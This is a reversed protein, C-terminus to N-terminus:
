RLASFVLLHWDLVVRGAGDTYGAASDALARLAEDPDPLAPDRVPGFAQRYDVYAAVSAHVVPLRVETVRVQRFGVEGLRDALGAASATPRPPMGLRRRAEQLVELERYDDGWTVAALLGGPRLVRRAEHLADPLDQFPGLSSTVVDMTASGIPLHRVDAPRWTM